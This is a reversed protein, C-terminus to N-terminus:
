LSLHFLIPPKITWFTLCLTHSREHFCELSHGWCYKFVGWKQPFWNAQKRLWHKTMPSTCLVLLILIFDLWCLNKRGLAWPLYWPRITLWGVACVLNSGGIYCWKRTPSTLWETVSHNCQAGAMRSPSLNNGKSFISLKAIFSIAEEVISRGADGGTYKSFVAIMINTDWMIHSKVLFAWKVAFATVWGHPERTKGRVVAELLWQGSPIACHAM